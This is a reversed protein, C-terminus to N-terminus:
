LHASAVQVFQILSSDVSWSLIICWKQLASVMQAQYSHMPTYLDVVPVVPAHLDSDSVEIVSHVVRLPSEHRLM